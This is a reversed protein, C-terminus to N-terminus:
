NRGTNSYYFRKPIYASLTIIITIALKIFWFSVIYTILTGSGASYFYAFILSFINTFLEMFVDGWAGQNNPKIILISIIAEMTNWILGVIWATISLISTTNKTIEFLETLTKEKEDCEIRTVKQTPTKFSTVKHCSTNTINDIQGVFPVYFILSFVVMFLTIGILFIIALPKSLVTVNRAKIENVKQRTKNKLPFFMKFIMAPISILYIALIIEVLLHYNNKFIIWAPLILLYPILSFLMKNEIKTM